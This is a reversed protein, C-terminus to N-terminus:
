NFSSLEKSKISLPQSCLYKCFVLGQTTITQAEGSSIRNIQHYYIFESHVTVIGNRLLPRPLQPSCKINEDTAYFGM